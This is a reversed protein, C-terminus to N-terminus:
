KLLIRCYRHLLISLISEATLFINSIHATAYSKAATVPFINFLFHTNNFYHFYLRHMSLQFHLVNGGVSLTKLRFASYFLFSQKYADQFESQM